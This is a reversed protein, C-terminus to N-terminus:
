YVYKLTSLRSFRTSPAIMPPKLIPAKVPPKRAYAFKQHNTTPQQVNEIQQLKPLNAEEKALSINPKTIPGQFFPHQLCQSASPRLKPDLQLMSQILSVAEPCAQNLLFSIPTPSMQPLRYQHKQLLHWGDPWTSESPSGCINCIKFLQDTESTGPFLPKLTYLEALICGVAWIDVPSNYFPHKLIIEPARYWRTSVYETYPPRSRIEKALGFDTIKLTGESDWMLNDPKMDRHFFGQKHVTQLGTLIQKAIYRVEEDTFPKTRKSITDLLSEQLLEFVLFMKDNERFIQLLRVVNEHKIKRLSLVEKEQLCDEFTKYNKKMEKIAVKRGTSKEICLLVNGFGGSGLNKVIEFAKM